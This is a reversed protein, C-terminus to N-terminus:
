MRRAALVSNEREVRNNILKSIINIYEKNNNAVSINNKKDKSIKRKIHFIAPRKKAIFEDKSQGEGLPFSDPWIDIVWGFIHPNVQGTFVVRKLDIDYKLMLKEVNEQNGKGCALYITNPNQKMIKSLTKIYEVSDIKVLRGITGLIVTDEGFQQLLAKKLILGQKKEEKSGTLFKTVIPVNFIHWKFEDCQQPFHSIRKDINDINFACNGHSYFIQEPACRNSIIFNNIDYGSATTILCDIRDEIIKKRINLAKELHPYYFGYNIFQNQPTYVNLGLKELEFIINQSECQKDLYNLSYIYIEYNKKFNEDSMLNKWLSYMVMYPSNFILRDIIFGIKKKKASIRKKPKLLNLNKSYKKYFESAPKEVLSNFKRWEDVTQINNGYIHYTFFHIYMQEEIMERKICENLLKVLDDFINLWIKNNMMIKNNWIITLSNVFVSRKEITNLGFFYKPKITEKVANIFIKEDAKINLLFKKAFSVFENSLNSEINFIATRKIFNKLGEKENGNLIELGFIFNNIIFKEEITANQYYDTFFKINKTITEDKPISIHEFYNFLNLFKNDLFEGGLLIFKKAKDRIRLLINKSINEESLNDIINLLDNKSSIKM